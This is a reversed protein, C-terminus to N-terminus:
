ASKQKGKKREPMGFAEAQGHGAFASARGAWACRAGSLDARLDQRFTAMRHKLGSVFDTLDGKTKASQRTHAFTFRARMEKTGTALNELFSRRIQHLADIENCLRGMSATLNMDMIMGRKRKRETLLRALPAAALRVTRGHLM